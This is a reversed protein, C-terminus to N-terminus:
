QWRMKSQRGKLVFFHSPSEAFDEFMVTGNPSVDIFYVRRSVLLDGM